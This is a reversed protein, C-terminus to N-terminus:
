CTQVGLVKYGPGLEYWMPIRMYKGDLRPERIRSLYFYM